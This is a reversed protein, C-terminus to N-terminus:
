AHSPEFRLKAADAPVPTPYERTLCARCLASAAVAIALVVAWGWNVAPTTVGPFVHTTWGRKAVQELWGDNVVNGLGYGLLLALYGALLAHLRGPRLARSLLLVALVCLTGDMGHHHGQHVAALPSGNPHQSCMFVSGPIYLGLDAALADDDDVVRDHAPVRGPLDDRHQELRARRLHM